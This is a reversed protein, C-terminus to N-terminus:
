EIVITKVVVQDDFSLHLAYVGSSLETTSFQQHHKNWHLNVPKGIADYLAITQISTNTSIQIPNGQKAPNPFVMFDIEELGNIGAPPVPDPKKLVKIYDFKTEVDSGWGNDVTLSVTFLGTDQYVIGAPNQQTSSQTQAGNFTWTWSSPNGTSADTFNVTLPAYGTLSDATFDAIPAELTTCGDSNRLSGRSTNLTNRMLNGQLYTFMNMCADDTYDMFNVSMDGGFGQNNCTTPDVPCDYNEQGQIPTDAIGDDVSCGGDGWVHRLGLWHGVEHTTTRGGDFPSSLSGTTGFYNFGIVVGDTAANEGPFQAFGLIGGAIRCVWINLYQNRPWADHGGSSTFKMNNNPPFQQVNTQTRTIGTTPNGEPDMSALCFEVRTDGSFGKFRTPTTLVDPNLRRFDENLVDIQSIIQADSINQQNTNYIVHVVVPITIVDAPEKVLKIDVDTYNSSNDLCPYSNMVIDYNGNTFPTFYLRSQSGCGGYDDNYGEATNSGQKYLTIVADFDNNGCTTIEYTYGAQMGMVRSYEGAYLQTTVTGNLTAPANVNEWFLNDNPCQSFSQGSILCFILLALFRNLYM